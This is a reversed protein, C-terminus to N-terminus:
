VEKPEFCGCPDDFEDINENLVRKITCKYNVYEGDDDENFYKCDRCYAEEYDNEGCCPCVSLSEWAPQGCCEGAYQWVTELECDIFAENCNRCILIM